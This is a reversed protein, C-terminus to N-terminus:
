LESISISIVSLSIFKYLVCINKGCKELWGNEVRSFYEFIHIFDTFEGSLRTNYAQILVAQVFLKFKVLTLNNFPWFQANSVQHPEFWVV